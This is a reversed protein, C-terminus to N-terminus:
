AGADAAPSGERRRVVFPFLKKVGWARGDGNITATVVDRSGTADYEHLAPLDVIVQTGCRKEQEHNVELVPGANGNLSFAGLLGLGGLGGFGGDGPGAGGPHTHVPPRFKFPLAALPELAVREDGRGYQMVTTPFLSVRFSALGSEPKAPVRHTAPTAPTGVLGTGLVTNGTSRGSGGCNGFEALADWHRSLVARRAARLLADTSPDVDDPTPPTPPQPQQQPQQPPQFMDLGEPPPSPPLALSSPQPADLAAPAGAAGGVHQDDDGQAGDPDPTPPQELHQVGGGAAAGNYSVSEFVCDHDHVAVEIHRIRVLHYSPM